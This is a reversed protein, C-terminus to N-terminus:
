DFGFGLQGPPVIKSRRRAARPRVREWSTWDADPFAAQLVRLTPPFVLQEWLYYRDFRGDFDEAPIAVAPNAAGDTVVYEIKTGKSVDRGRDKLVHAVEVHAAQAADAGDLKQRRAYAGLPKALRKSIVVDELALEGELVRARHRDLLEGYPGPALIEERLLMEIAELQLERALRSTDGRKFELGKVELKSSKNAVKGDAHAYRAAYRKKGILCIAALKKEYALSIFNRTAGQRRVLMPFLEANCWAVFARFEDDSCGIVFLSDTDGYVVEWGRESAERKTETILWAGGRSMSEATDRQFFRSAETGIGGFYANTARKFADSQRDADIWEPTGPALSAKLRKFHDRRRILEDFAEPLLGRPEQSVVVWTYPVHAHGPPIPSGKPQRGRTTEPSVNFTQAISPYLSKFDCVHVDRVIGIRTPEFVEAGKFKGEIEEAYHHTRFRFGRPAGLRMLFGEIQRTPLLGKTDAFCASAECLANLIGVFGTRREIEFCLRADQENYRLLLERAIGDAEWLDWSDAGRIKIEGRQESSLRYREFLRPSRVELYRLLAAASDGDVRSKASGAIALAQADLSMSQKEDGTGGLNMRRVLVLQDLWLWRRVDITLGHRRTRAHLCPFDFGDGYWAIVQDFRDLVAWLAVILDRESDRDFAELAESGALEGREDFVAWSLITAREKEGPPVRSDTEIDLFCGRPRAVPITPNDTLYRRVPDVDAELLEVGARDFGSGRRSAEIASWRDRWRLRLYEGDERISAIRPSARLRRGLDDDVDSRRVFSAHDAHESRVVVRGARDREVLSLTSKEWFANVLEQTDSRDASTPDQAPKFPPDALGRELGSKPPDIKERRPM